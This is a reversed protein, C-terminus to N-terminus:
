IIREFDFNRKIITNLFNGASEAALFEDYVDKPVDFYAYNAKKFAIFLTDDKWATAEIAASKRHMVTWKEPLTAFMTM